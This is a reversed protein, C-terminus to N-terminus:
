RIECKPLYKRASDKLTELVGEPTENFEAPLNGKSFRENLMEEKNRAIFKQLYYKHGNSCTLDVIWRAMDEAEKETMWGPVTDLIPTLTTRFEYDPFIMVTKISREINTLNASVGAIQSYRESPGKIDMAVYDVIGLLNELMKPNTGNTDVKVNLGLDKLKRAFEPLDNQLTPEGGSICVGNYWGAQSKSKLKKLLEEENVRVGSDGMLSPNHCFGCKFNCGGLFITPGYKGPYDIAGEQIVSSIIM